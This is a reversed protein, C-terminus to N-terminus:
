EAAEAEATRFALANRAEGTLRQIEAADSRAEDFAEVAKALAEERQEVRRTARALDRRTERARVRVGADHPREALAAQSRAEGASAAALEARAEDLQEQANERWTETSSLRHEM